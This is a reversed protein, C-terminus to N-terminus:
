ASILTKAKSCILEIQQELTLFTTDIIIADEVQTLPSDERTSDIKDRHVLNEKLDELPFLKGTKHLLEDQRRKTRVDLDATMFFKLEADPLVVSGIDRGEMVVGRQTAMKQQQEVLKRRVSSNTAVESVMAAVYPKRIEMEVDENNLFTHLVGNVRKFNIEIDPLAKEIGDQNHVNILHQQLYYTVARYMAGTDIYTYGLCDAVQKATSSKGCASFGDIAINIRKTM